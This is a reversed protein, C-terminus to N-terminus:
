PNEGTTTTTTTPPESPESPSVAHEETEELDIVDIDDLYPVADCNNVLYKSVVATDGFVDSAIHFM